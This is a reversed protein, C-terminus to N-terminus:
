AREELFTLVPVPESLVAEAMDFMAQAPTIHCAHAPVNISYVYVDESYGYSTMYHHDGLVPFWTLMQEISAFAFYLDRGEDRSNRWFAYAEASEDLPGPRGGAANHDGPQMATAMGTMYIGDGCRDALRYLTVM